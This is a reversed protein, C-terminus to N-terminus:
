RGPQLTVPVREGPLATLPELKLEPAASPGMMTLMWKNDLGGTISLAYPVGDAAAALVPLASLRTPFGIDGAPSGNIPNFAPLVAEYGPVFVVGGLLVPGGAPRYKLGERWEIAGDRRDVAWLLNDMAAFYVHRNDAVARGRVLAGIPRKSEERGSSAHLTFFTKAESGVYIRGGIVFPDTPASGLHVDWHVTGDRIDLAVVRGDTVSVIMLDGDLAPPFEVPGIHKRWVVTGDSARIALLDGASAAIVWGAHALPPATFPGPSASKWAPAGTQADLAHLTEGAAVYVREHDSALPQEATIEANWLRRGDDLHHGALEGQLPLV